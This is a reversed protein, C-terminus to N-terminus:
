CLNLNSRILDYTSPKGEQMCGIQPNASPTWEGFIQWCLPEQLRENRHGQQQSPKLNIGSATIGTCPVSDSCAFLVPKETYTGRINEYTIGSVAVASTQNRCDKNVDCYYQDIIIPYRVRSMQINSFIVGQVSGAGGQIM